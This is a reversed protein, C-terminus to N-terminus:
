GSGTSSDHRYLKYFALTDEQAQRLITATYNTSLLLTMRLRDFSSVTLKM